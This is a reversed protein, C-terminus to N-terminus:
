ISQPTPLPAPPRRKSRTPQRKEESFSPTPTRSESHKPLSPSSRQNLLPRYVRQTRRLVPWELRSSEPSPPPSFSSTVRSSSTPSEASISTNEMRSLTSRAQTTSNSPPQNVPLLECPHTPLWRQSNFPQHQSSWKRKLQFTPSHVIPDLDDDLVDDLDGLYGVEM